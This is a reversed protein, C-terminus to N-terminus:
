WPIEDNMDSSVSTDIAATGDKKTTGVQVFAPTTIWGIREDRHRFGSLALKVIPYSLPDSRRLRQCVDVLRSVATRGTKSTSQFIFPEGDWVLPLLMQMKWPDAPQGSLDLEWLTEDTDGLTDRKVPLFGQFLPGMHRTPPTGKGNFKIWGVQIQDYAAVMETGIPIEEDDSVKRFKVDKAFKFWTAGGGGGHELKFQNITDDNTVSHDDRQRQLAQQATQEM